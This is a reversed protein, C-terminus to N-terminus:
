KLPSGFPGLTSEYAVVLLNEYQFSNEYRIASVTLRDAAGLILPNGHKEKLYNPDMHIHFIVGDIYIRFIETSNVENELGKPPHKIDFFPIQNHIEGQTSLQTITVPLSFYDPDQDSLIVQRLCEELNSSLEVEKLEPLSSTGCRWLISLVFKYLETANHGEITRIQPGNYGIEEFHPPFLTWGSWVLRSKRLEIIAKSDIDSLIDEGARTVITKDYWSSWRRKYGKGRTSQALPAGNVRPRTLAQPLIHSKVFKGETGTLKCIEMEKEKKM